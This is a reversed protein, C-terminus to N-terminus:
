ILVKYCENYLKEICIFRYALLLVVLFTHEDFLIIVYHDGNFIRLCGFSKMFDNWRKVYCYSLKNKIYVVYM